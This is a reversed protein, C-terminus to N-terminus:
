FLLVRVPGEAESIGMNVAPDLQCGQGLRTRARWEQFAKCSLLKGISAWDPMSWWTECESDGLGFITFYTDIYKVGTEKEIESWYKRTRM